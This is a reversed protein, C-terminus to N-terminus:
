ETELEASDAWVWATLPVLADEPAAVAVPAAPVPEVPASPVPAVPALPVPAVPESPVPAVPLPAVAAM